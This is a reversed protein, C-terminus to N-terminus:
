EIYTLDNLPEKLDLNQQLLEIVSHNGQASFWGANAFCYRYYVARASPDSLMECRIWELTEHLGCVSLDFLESAGFFVEGTAFPLIREVSVGRRMAVWQYFGAFQLELQSQVGYEQMATRGCDKLSDLKGKAIKERSIGVALEQRMLSEILMIVGISGLASAHSAFIYDTACAIQYSASAVMPEACFAVLKKGARKIRNLQNVIDESVIVAGGPGMVSILVVQIHSDSIVKDVCMQLWKLDIGTFEFSGNRTKPMIEGYIAIIGISPPIKSKQISQLYEPYEVLTGYKAQLVDKVEDLSSLRVIGWGLADHICCGNNKIIDELHVDSLSLNQKLIQAYIEIRSDILKAARKIRAESPRDEVYSSYLDKAPTSKSRVIWYDGLREKFFSHWAYLWTSPNRVELRSTLPMTVDLFITNATSIAVWDRLDFIKSSVVYVKKGAARMKAISENFQCSSLGILNMLPVNILVARVDPDSTVSEAFRVLCFDWEARLEGRTETGTLRETRCFQEIGCDFVVVKSYNQQFCRIKRPLIYPLVSNLTCIAM